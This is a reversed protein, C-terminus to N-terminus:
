NSVPTSSSAPIPTAVPPEYIIEVVQERTRGYKDKAELVIRNSGEALLFAEKFAGDETVSIPKGNMTLQSIRSATGHINIFPEHVITAQKPVDISPGYLLGRAEYYAYFIVILFFIGLAIRTLRSDRYPLM